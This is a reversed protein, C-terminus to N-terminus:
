CVYECLAHFCRFAEFEVDVYDLRSDWSVAMKEMIGYRVVDEELRDWPFHIQAWSKTANIILFFGLLWGLFNSSM